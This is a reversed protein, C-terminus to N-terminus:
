HMIACEKLNIEAHLIGVIAVLVYCVVVLVHLLPCINVCSSTCAHKKETVASVLRLAILPKFVCLKRPKTM